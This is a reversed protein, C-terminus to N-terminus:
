AIRDKLSQERVFSGIFELAEAASLPPEANDHSGRYPHESLQLADAVRERLEVLRKLYEAQTIGRVAAGASFQRSVGEDVGRISLIKVM